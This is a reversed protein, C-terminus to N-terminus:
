TRLIEKTAPEIEAKAKIDVVFAAWAVPTVIVWGTLEPSTITSQSRSAKSVFSSVTTALSVESETSEIVDVEVVPEAVDVEVVLEAVDVEVVLEAVDVEVVPDVLVLV